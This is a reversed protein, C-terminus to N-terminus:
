SQYLRLAPKDEQVPHRSPQTHLLRQPAYGEDASEIWGKVASVRHSFPHILMSCKM